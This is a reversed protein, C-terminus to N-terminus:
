GADIKECLRNQSLGMILLHSPAIDLTDSYKKLNYRFVDIYAM